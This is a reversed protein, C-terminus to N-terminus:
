QSSSDRLLVDEPAVTALRGRADVYQSRFAEVGSELRSIREAWTELSGPVSKGRNTQAENRIRSVELEARDLRRKAESVDRRLGALKKDADQKAQKEPSIGPEPKAPVPRGQLQTAVLKEHQDAAAKERSLAEMSEEVDWQFREQWSAALDEPGLSSVGQSHVIEVGAPTVRRITVERYVKGGVAELQAMKEGAAAQRAQKRFAARYEAFSAKAGEVSGKLVAHQSRLEKLRETSTAAALKAKELDVPQGTIPQSRERFEDRAIEARRRLTDLEHKEEKLVQELDAKGSSFKFRKDVMLSFAIGAFVLVIIGVLFGVMGSQDNSDNLM